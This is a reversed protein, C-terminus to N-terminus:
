RHCLIHVTQRPMERATCTTCTEASASETGIAVTALRFRFHDHGTTKQQDEVIGHQEKLRDADKFLDVQLGIFEDAGEFFYRM